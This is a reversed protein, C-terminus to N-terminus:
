SYSNENSFRVFFEEELEDGKTSIYRELKAAKICTNEVTTNGYPNEFTVSKPPKDSDQKTKDDSSNDTSTESVSAASEADSGEKKSPDETLEHENRKM